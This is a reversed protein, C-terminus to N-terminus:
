WKYRYNRYRDYEATKKLFTVLKFMFFQSFISDTSVPLAIDLNKYNSTIPIFGLTLLPLKQFFIITTKHYAVDTILINKVSYSNLLEVIKKSFDNMKLPTIFMLTLNLRTFLNIKTFTLWNLAYVENRFFPNGFTLLTINYFYINYIFHIKGV